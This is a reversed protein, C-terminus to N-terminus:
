SDVRTVGAEDPIHITVPDYLVDKDKRAQKLAISAEPTLVYGIFMSSVGSGTPIHCINDFGTDPLKSYGLLYSESKHDFTCTLFGVLQAV